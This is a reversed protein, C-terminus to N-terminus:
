KCIYYTLYNHTANSCIEYIRTYERASMEHMHTLPTNIFLGQAPREVGSTTRKTHAATSSTDELHLMGGQLFLLPGSSELFLHFKGPASLWLIESANSWLYLLLSCDNWALSGPLGITFELSSIKRIRGHECPGAPSETAKLSGM